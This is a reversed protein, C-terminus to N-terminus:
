IGLCPLHDEFTALFFICLTGLPQVTWRGQRFDCILPLFVVPCSLDCVMTGEDRLSNGALIALSGTCRAGSSYLPYLRIEPLRDNGVVIAARRQGAAVAETSLM